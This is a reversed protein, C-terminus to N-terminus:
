AATEMVQTCTETDIDITALEPLCIFRTGDFTMDFPEHWHGFIWLKPHHVYAMENFAVRTRSANRPDLKMPDGTKSNVMRGVIAEAIFQPCEHTVMIEPEIVAFESVLMDLRHQSLEEDSWWSYGEIRYARDVSVGGGIYMINDVVTGDPICQKHRACNAPNDHNGRHFTAGHAVMLDFSPNPALDGHPWRRFGIGMDGVQHTRYPSDRVIRHYQNYKGHVDGIFRIIM